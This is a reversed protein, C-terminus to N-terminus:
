DSALTKHVAMCRSHHQSHILDEVSADALLKCPPSRNLHIMINQLINDNIVSMARVTAWLVQLLTISPM